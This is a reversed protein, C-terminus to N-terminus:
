GAAGRWLLSVLAVVTLLLTPYFTLAFGFARAAAGRGYGAAFSIRGIVFLAVATPVAPFWGATMSAAWVLHALVAITAQELTNQLIAQFIRARDTGSTLGSGDIDAPTLFRHRALNGIAAVLCLLVAVDWRLAMAIRADIQAPAMLFRPQWFVAALLLVVSLGLALVMNRLVGRQATDLAM